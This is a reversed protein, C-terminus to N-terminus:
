KKKTKLDKELEKIKARLQDIEKAQEFTIGVQKKYDEGVEYLNGAVHISFEELEEVRAQLSEIVEIATLITTGEPPEPLQGTEDSWYKLLQLVRETDKTM